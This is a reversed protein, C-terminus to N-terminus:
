PATSATVPQHSILKVDGKIDSTLIFNRGTICAMMEVFNLLPTSAFDLNISAGQAQSIRDAHGGCNRNSAGPTGGVTKVGGGDAPLPKIMDLVPGGSPQAQAPQTLWFLSSLLLFFRM